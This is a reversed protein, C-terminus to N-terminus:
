AGEEAQGHGRDDRATGRRVAGTGARVRRGGVEPRLAIFMRATNAGGGGLRLKRQRADLHHGERLPQRLWVVDDQALSGVVVIRAM